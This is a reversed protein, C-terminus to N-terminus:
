INFRLRPRRRDVIKKLVRGKLAPHECKPAAVRQRHGEAKWGVVRFGRTDPVGAQTVNPSRPHFQTLM